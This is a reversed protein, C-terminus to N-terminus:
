LYLAIVSVWTFIVAQFNGFAWLILTFEMDVQGKDVIDEIITNMFLLILIAIFIHYITQFHNIEFLDTLLSNRPTFEKEPLTGCPLKKRKTGTEFQTHSIVLSRYKQPIRVWEMGAVYEEMMSSLQQDM